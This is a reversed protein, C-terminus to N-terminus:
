SSELFARVASKRQANFQRPDVTLVAYQALVVSTVSSAPCQRRLVTSPSPRTISTSSGFEVVAVTFALPHGAEPSGIQTVV